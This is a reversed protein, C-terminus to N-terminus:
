RCPVTELIFGSDEILFAYPNPCECAYYWGPEVFGNGNPDTYYINSFEPCCSEGDTFVTLPEIECVEFGIACAEDPGGFPGAINCQLLSPGSTCNHDYAYFESMAHPTGNSGPLNSLNCPDTNNAAGSLGALSSNSNSLGLEANIQSINIQGSGQLPM